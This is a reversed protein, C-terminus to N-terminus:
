INIKRDTNAPSIVRRVTNELFAQLTLNSNQLVVDLEASDEETLRFVRQKMDLTNVGRKTREPKRM